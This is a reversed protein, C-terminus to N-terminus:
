GRGGLLLLLRSVVFVVVILRIHRRSSLTSDMSTGSGPRDRIIGTWSPGRWHVHRGRRRDPVKQTLVRRMVVPSESFVTVRSLVGCPLSETGYRAATIARMTRPRQRRAESTKM